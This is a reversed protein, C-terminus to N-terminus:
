RSTKRYLRNYGIGTIKHLKKYWFKRSPRSMVGFFGIYKIKNDHCYNRMFGYLRKADYENKCMVMHLSLGEIVIKNHIMFIQKTEVVKQTSLMVNEIIEMATLKRNAGTVAFIEEFFVVSKDVIDWEPDDGVIDGVLVMRKKVKKDDVDSNKSKLLLVEYITPVLIKKDSKYIFNKPFVIPESKVKKFKRDIEDFSDSKYLTKIKKKNEVLILQFM